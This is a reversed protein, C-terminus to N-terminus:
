KGLELNGWLMLLLNNTFSKLEFFPFIIETIDESNVACGIWM